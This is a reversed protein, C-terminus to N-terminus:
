SNQPHSGPRPTLGPAAPPLAARRSMVALAVPPSRAGRAAVERIMEVVGPMNDEAIAIIVNDKSAFYSNFAGSSLGAEAGCCQRSRRGRHTPGSITSTRQLTRPRAAMTAAWRAGIRNAALRARSRVRSRACARAIRTSLESTLTLVSVAAAHSSAVAHTVCRPGDLM